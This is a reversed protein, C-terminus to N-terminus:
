SSHLDKLWTKISKPIEFCFVPMVINLWDTNLSIIATISKAIKILNLGILTMLITTKTIIM